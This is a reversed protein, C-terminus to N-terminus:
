QDKKDAASASKRDALAQRKAAEKSAKAVKSENVRDAVRFTGRGTYKNTGLAQSDFGSWKSQSAFFRTRALIQLMPHTFLAVVALDILTTLGLTYAFGRVNGVTLAFLTVAALISVGDSVIITRLARKWGHDVASDLGRGDRLEDRVREFYVIFSDATIGIAVILGAVGALSLRYGQRWSLVSITLYVLIAAVLLSGITVIALGRYQFVSYIVVLILGV